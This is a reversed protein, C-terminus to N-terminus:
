LGRQFGLRPRLRAIAYDVFTRVKPLELRGDPILLHVPIPDPEDETLIIRLRGEKVPQEIQYSLVRIIGHGDLAARITPDILNTSLFPTIRIHRHADTGSKSPFTWVDADGSGDHTICTHSSLDAPTEIHPHADLYAPSAAVVRRVDGAKIAIMGSDTLNAIRLAVDIGEEILSVPRDLLLYRAQV